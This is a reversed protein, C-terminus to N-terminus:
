PLLLTNPTTPMSSKVTQMLPVPKSSQKEILVRASEGRRQHPQEVRGLRCPTLRRPQNPGDTPYKKLFFCSLVLQDVRPSMREQVTAIPQFVPYDPRM